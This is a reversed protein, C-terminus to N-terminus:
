AGVQASPTLFPVSVPTSQPPLQGFLHPVPPPQEEPLSQTLPTQVPLMQWAGVQASPTLFPVSVPM